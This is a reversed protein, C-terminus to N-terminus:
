APALELGVPGAEGELATRLRRLGRQARSKATPLPIGEHMAVEEHTWGEIVVRCITDRQAPPLEDLAADLDLRDEVPEPDVAIEPADADPAMHRQAKRIRRLHDIAVNRMIRTMWALAHGRAPDFQAASAWIRLYAEQVADEAADRLRLLAMAQGLLRPATADYLQKFARKDGEGTLQVLGALLEGPGASPNTYARDIM